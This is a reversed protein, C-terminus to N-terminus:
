RHHAGIGLQEAREVGVRCQPATLLCDRGCGGCRPVAEAEHVRLDDPYATRLTESLQNQIDRMKPVTGEAIVKGGIALAPLKSVGNIKDRAGVEVYEFHLSPSGVKAVARRTREAMMMADSGGKGIVTVTIM